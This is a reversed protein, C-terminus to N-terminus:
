VHPLSVSMFLILGIYMGPISKVSMQLADKICWPGMMLWVWWLLAKSCCNVICQTLMLRCHMYIKTFDVGSLEGKPLILACISFVLCVLSSKGRCWITALLFYALCVLPGKMSCQLQTVNSIYRNSEAPFWRLMVPIANYHRPINIVKQWLDGCCWRM